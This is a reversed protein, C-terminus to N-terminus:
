SFSHLHLPPSPDSSFINFSILDIKFTLKLHWLSGRTSIDLLNNAIPYASWPFQCWLCFSPPWHRILLYSWWFPLAFLPSPLFGSYCHKIYLFHMWCVIHHLPRFLYIFILISHLWSILLSNQKRCNSIDEFEKSSSFSKGIVLVAESVLTTM